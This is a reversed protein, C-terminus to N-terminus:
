KKEPQKIVKEEEAAPEDVPVASVLVGSFSMDHAQQDLTIHSIMGRLTKTGTNEQGLEGRWFVTGEKESTQMTELVITGDDGMTLTYNTPNFGRALFDRSTVQNDKFTLVDISKTGEKASSILEINWSTNELEARKQALAEKVKKDGTKKAATTNDTKRKAYVEVSAFNLFLGAVMLWILHKKM